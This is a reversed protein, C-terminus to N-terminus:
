LGAWGAALLAALVLAGGGFFTSARAEHDRVFCGAILLAAAGLAAVGAIWLSWRPRRGTGEPEAEGMEGGLLARAPVKRLGHVTWAITLLSVLLAGGYGLALSQWTTHLQLFSRDLAVPWWAGLLALLLRAYAVAAALGLLGGLVAVLAGEALLLW